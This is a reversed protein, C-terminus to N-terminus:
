YIKSWVGSDSCCLRFGSTDVAFQLIRVRFYSHSTNTCCAQKNKKRGWVMKRQYATCANHMGYYKSSGPTQSAYQTHVTYAKREHHFPGHTPLPGGPLPNSRDGERLWCGPSISDVRMCVARRRRPTLISCKRTRDRPFSGM